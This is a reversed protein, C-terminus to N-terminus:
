TWVRQLAFGVLEGSTRDIGGILHVALVSERPSSHLAVITPQDLTRRLAGLVAAGPLEYSWSTRAHPTARDLWAGTSGHLNDVIADLELTEIWGRTPDEPVLRGEEEVEEGGDEIWVEASERILETIQTNERAHDLLAAQIDKDSRLPRTFEHLLGPGSESGAWSLDIGRERLDALWARLDSPERAEVLDIILAAAEAPAPRKGLLKALRSPEPPQPVDLIQDLLAQRDALTPDPSRAAGAIAVFRAAQNPEVKAIHKTGLAALERPADPATPELPLGNAYLTDGALWLVGDIWLAAVRTGLTDIIWAEREADPHAPWLPNGRRPAAPGLVAFSAHPRLM